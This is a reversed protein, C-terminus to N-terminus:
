CYHSAAGIVAVNFFDALRAKAETVEGQQRFPSGDFAAKGLPEVTPV